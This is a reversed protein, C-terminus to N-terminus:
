KLELLKVYHDMTIVNTLWPDKKDWGCDCHNTQLVQASNAEKALCDFFVPIM